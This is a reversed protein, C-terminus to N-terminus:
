EMGLEGWQQAQIKLRPLSVFDAANNIPLPSRVVDVSDGQVNASPLMFVNPYAEPWREGLGTM